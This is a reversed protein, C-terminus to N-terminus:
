TTSTPRRSPTRISGSRTASSSSCSGDPTTRTPTGSRRARGWNRASRSSSSAISNTRRRFRPSPFTTPPSPRRRPRITSSALRSRDPRKSRRKRRRITRLRGTRSTPTSQSTRTPSRSRPSRSRATGFSPESRSRTTRPTTSGSAGNSPRSTSTPPGPSPFRSGTSPRASWCISRDASNTRTTTPNPTSSTHTGATSPTLATTPSRTSRSSIRSTSDARIRSSAIRTTANSLRRPRRTTSGPSRRRAFPSPGRPSPPTTPRSYECGGSTRPRKRIQLTREFASDPTEVSLTRRAAVADVGVVTELGESALREGSPDDGVGPVAVCGGLADMSGALGTALFRRRNM